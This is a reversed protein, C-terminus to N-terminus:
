VCDVTTKLSYVKLAGNSVDVMSQIALIIMPQITSVPASLWVYIPRIIVLNELGVTISAFVATFMEMAKPNTLVPLFVIDVSTILSPTSDQHIPVTPLVFIPIMSILIVWLVYKFVHRQPRIGLHKFQYIIKAFIEASAATIILMDLIHCAHVSVLEPIM